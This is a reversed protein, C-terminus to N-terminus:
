HPSLYITVVPSYMFIGTSRKFVKDQRYGKLKERLRDPLRDIPGNSIVAAASLRATDADDATYYEPNKYTWTFRLSSTKIEELPLSVQQENDYYIAKDSYLDFIPVAIAQNVITEDSYITFVRINETDITRVYEGAAELNGLSMTRLFPLYAYLATVLSAGVICTVLSKKLGTCKIRQLGYSAMLTLMPFTVMVYRSRKIQFAVVLLILWGVIIFKLDRKMIAIIISCLAAATIFPNVQYLFTSVFSEGWRRLGPAQYEKLFQIQEYVVDYKILLLSGALLGTILAIYAGRYFIRTRNGPNEGRLETTEASVRSAKMLYVLLIVIIVSLMMWTSYKSFLACFIALSSYVIWAGGKEMAMIVTYSSLTLFFMTPVDVLMLPVQSFLYPIGLLLAGAFFGTDEDWLRKGILYTTVVTMSFFSTTLVQIYARSEGFVKFVLGYLFPVLPLDTWANIAKGWESIFYYPGYVELHKAQTFYRSTDLIVEPTKWFLSAAAFSIFFLFLVPRQAALPLRFLLGAIIMGGILVPIFYVLDVNAFTWKWSTLRNDDLHRFIYLIIFSIVVLAHPSLSRLIKRPLPGEPMM